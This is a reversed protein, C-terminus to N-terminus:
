VDAKMHHNLLTYKIRTIEDSVAFWFGDYKYTVLFQYRSIKWFSISHVQFMRM